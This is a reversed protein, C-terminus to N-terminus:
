KILNADKDFIEQDGEIVNKLVFGVFDGFDFHITEEVVKSVSFTAEMANIKLRPFKPIGTRIFAPKDFTHTKKTPVMETPKPPYFSDVVSQVVSQVTGIEQDNEDYFKTDGAIKLIFEKETIHLKEEEKTIWERDWIPKFGECHPPAFMGFTTDIIKIAGDWYADTPESLEYLCIGHHEAFKRAGSQYGTRTVFIGITKNPLDDLVCNFKFLEGQNVPKGWDKAEVATRYTIGGKEFEWYVDIQHTVSSKGQLRVDHEVKITPVSNQNFIQDFIQQTLKEYPIGTNIAM